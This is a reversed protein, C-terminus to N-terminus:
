AQVAINASTLRLGNTLDAFQGGKGFGSLEGNENYYLAGSSRVYTILAKSKKAQTANQVTAFSARNGKIAKFTTKDLIIKDFQPNFDTIQDIGILSQKFARGIDFVIRDRGAGTTILDSSFSGIITNNGADGILRDRQRTGVLREGLVDSLNITINAANSLGGPDQVTVSLGFSSRQEFDLDGSDAVTIAGTAANIAFAATGDGDLDVNGTTIVYTLAAGEPDSASVGGVLTGLASNEPLSFSGAQITPASNPITNPVSVPIDGNGRFVLTYDANTTTNTRGAVRVFIQGSVDTLSVAEGNGNTVGQNPNIPNGNTDYLYLDLNGASNNFEIAIQNPNWETGRNSTISFWDERLAENATGDMTLGPFRLENVGVSGLSYAQELSDNREAWDEIINPSAPADITLDYTNAAANLGYTKLFYQGVALGSLSVQETTTDGNISSTSTQLLAGAASYIALKLGGNATKFSIKAADNATGTAVTEFRFWDIDNSDSINLSTFRKGAGALAHLETAQSRLNNVEAWDPNSTQIRAIPPQRNLFNLWNTDTYFDTFGAPYAAQGFEPLYISLGTGREQTGSHNRILANTLATSVAQAATRISATIGANAAIADTFSKLDRYSDNEFFPAAVRASAIAQWDATTASNLATTAFTDLATKLGAYNGVRTASLTENNGYFSGYTNVIAAGLQEPSMAPNAALQNLFATYDWGDGPEVKQSAVMVDTLNRLQYGQEVMGQLCTDFGILDFTQGSNQIATSIEKLTLNDNGNSDDWTVGPLGGGHNWLVLGYRQAPNNQIGWQIFNTLTQPAGMNLEGVSTLPSSILSEDTDHVIIGRRTDTWNGNSSDYGGVRDVLTVVRIGSPLLAAEMENIDEVGAGELNNDADLYVLLTWNPLAAVPGAPANIALSYNANTAGNVGTVQAYYTGAALSQLSIQESSTVGNSQRLLNGASDYLNLALDGAAHNFSIQVLDNATGAGATTFKFWDQDNAPSISLNQWINGTGSLQRLDTATNLSNNAEFGDPPIDSPATPGDISLTYGPSTANNYGYVQIYYDGAARGDLSLSETNVIGQSRGLENGNSDFLALDLDGLQHDFAISVTNGTVGTTPLTLKFWDGKSTGIDSEDLTLGLNSSNLAGGRYRLDYATALSDNQEAADPPIVTSFVEPANVVLSYNPNTAGAFGYIRLFYQGAILGDLSVFESNGTGYSGNILAGDADYLQLDIDGLEGNFAIQASNDATGDAGITFRYWDENDSQHITLQNFVNNTGSLTRLDAANNQSDNPEFNDPAIANLNPPPSVTLEYFPNTAGAFGYVHLFYTGAALGDLSIEERDGVSYSGRLAAGNADVLEMDIDGAAHSFDIQVTDTYSGDGLTTFKYWDDDTLSLSGFSSRDTLVGLNYAAQQSDNQEYADEPNGPPTITLTYNPNQAGSYGYIHAYYTGVALGDLSIEEYNNVSYSGLIPIGNADVLQMDIDGDAHLFDLRVSNGFTGPNAIAFQFWDDDTVSLGEISTPSNLTGLINATVLSDDDEYNDPQIGPASITLAYSPNAVGNYGYVRVYYTSAALGLLSIEERNGVGASSSLFIGNADYLQIDVDGYVHLFDASVYNGSTGTETTTFRFWDEDNLDISLNNFSNLAQLTGFNTATGLTNNIEYGDPM